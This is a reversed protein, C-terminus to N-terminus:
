WPRSTRTAWCGTAKWKEHGETQSVNRLKRRTVQRGVTMTGHFGGLDTLKSKRMKDIM